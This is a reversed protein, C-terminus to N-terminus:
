IEFVFCSLGMLVITCQYSTLMASKIAAKMDEGSTGQLSIRKEFLGIYYTCFILV